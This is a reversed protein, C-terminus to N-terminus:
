VGGGGMPTPCKQTRPNEWIKPPHTKFNVGGGTVLCIGSGDGHLYYKYAKHKDARRFQSQVMRFELSKKGSLM